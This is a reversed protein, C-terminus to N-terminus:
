QRTYTGNQCSNAEVGYITNGSLTFVVAGDSSTATNGSFTGGYWATSTRTSACTLRREVGYTAPGWQYTLTSTAYGAVTVSFTATQKPDSITLSPPVLIVTPAAARVDWINFTNSSLLQYFIGGVDGATLFADFPKIIAFLKSAFQDFVVLPAQAAPIVEAGAWLLSTMLHYAADRFQPNAVSAKFVIVTSPWMDGGKLLQSSYTAGATGAEKFFQNAYNVVKNPDSWIQSTGPNAPLVKTLIPWVIEEMGQYIAMFQQM